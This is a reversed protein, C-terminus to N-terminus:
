LGAGGRARESEAGGGALRAQRWGAAWRRSAMRRGQRGGVDQCRAPGRRLGGEPDHVLKHAEDREGDAGLEGDTPEGAEEGADSGQAEDGGDTSQQPRWV